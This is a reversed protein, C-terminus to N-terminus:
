AFIHRIERVLVILCVFALGLLGMGWYPEMLLLKGTGFFVAFLFVSASVWAVFSSRLNDPSGGLGESKLEEALRRWGPGAPRVRRYFAHLGSREGPSTLLTVPIWTATTLVTIILINVLDQDPRASYAGMDWDYRLWLVLVTYFLASVMASIESWANVRWWYWRMIYVLGTGATIQLWFMLVGLIDQQFLLPIAFPVVCLLVTAARSV